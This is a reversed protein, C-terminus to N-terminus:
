ATKQGWHKLIENVQDDTMDAFSFVNAAQSLDLAHIQRNKRNDAYIAMCEWHGEKISYIRGQRTQRAKTDLGLKKLLNTISRIAYRENIKEFNGFGLAALECHHLQLKKLATLAQTYNFSGEGTQKDIGLTNFLM